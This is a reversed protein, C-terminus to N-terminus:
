TVKSGRMIHFLLDPALRKLTVALNEKFGAIVVETEGKKIAELIKKACEEPEMGAETAEDMKGYEKGNGTVANISVNTKVYGPLVLLVQINDEIVELRLSDYFGHLAHKSASYGSRLQTPVKGVISSIVVISGSKRKMMDPLITKTLAINGFFNVEFLKRYVELDTDKILSRQSQGANNILIDIQGFKDKIQQYKDPFSETETLNLPLCLSNNTDLGSSEQVQKLEEERRASLIVKAGEKKLNHVLAEGIGSTAGTVWVVKEKLQNM